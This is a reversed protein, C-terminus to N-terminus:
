VLAQSQVAAALIIHSAFGEKNQPIHQRTSQNLLSMGLALTVRCTGRAVTLADCSPVHRRGAASVRMTLAAPLKSESCQIMVVELRSASAHM